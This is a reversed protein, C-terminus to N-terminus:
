HQRIFSKYSRCFRLFLYLIKTINIFHRYRCWCVEYMGKLQTNINKNELSQRIYLSLKLILCAFSFCLIQTLFSLVLGHPLPCRIEFKLIFNPSCRLRPSSHPSQKESKKTFNMHPQSSSPLHFKLDPTLPKKNSLRLYDSSPPSM